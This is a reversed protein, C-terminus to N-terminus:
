DDKEKRKRVKIQHYVSHKRMYTTDIQEWDLWNDRPRYFGQEELIGRAEKLVSEDGNVVEVLVSYWGSKKPGEISMLFSQGENVDEWHLGWGDTM